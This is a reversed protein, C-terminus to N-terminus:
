NITGAPTSFNFSISLSSFSLYISSCFPAIRSFIHVLGLAGIASSVLGMLDLTRKVLAPLRKFIM